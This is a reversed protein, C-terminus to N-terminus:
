GMTPWVLDGSCATYINTFFHYPLRQYKQLRLRQDQKGKCINSTHTRGPAPSGNAWCWPKKYQKSAWPGPQLTHLQRHKTEKEKHHHTHPVHWHQIELAIKKGQGQPQRSGAAPSSYSVTSKIISSPTMWSHYVAIGTSQHQYVRWSNQKDATIRVANCAAMSM